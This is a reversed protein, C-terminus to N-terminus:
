KALLSGYPWLHPKELLWTLIHSNSLFSPQASFFQHKWVTTSSFVRQLGKSLLFILGTLPFWSQITMPLASVSASVGIRQGGSAFLQNIPFSGSEPFSQPCSSFPIVSSSTAPHCWLSSPCSNPYVEPTPSPCPPRAHQSEHPPLSDSMVSHIFQVSSLNTMVIRGLLLHKRIDHSCDGDATIKSGLFIFRESNGNNGWRSAM